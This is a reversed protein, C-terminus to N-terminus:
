HESQTPSGPEPDAGSGSETTNAVRLRKRSAAPNKMYESATVLTDLTSIQPSMRGTEVEQSPLPTPGGNVSRTVKGQRTLPVYEEIGSTEKKKVITWASDSCRGVRSPNLTADDESFAAFLKLLRETQSTSLDRSIRRIWNEGSEDTFTISANLRDSIRSM